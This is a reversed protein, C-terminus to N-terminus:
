PEIKGESKIRTKIVETKRAIWESLEEHTINNMQEIKELCLYVDAIEEILHDRNGEGRKQKSLEKTLESMEEIAVMREMDYGYFALVDTCVKKQEPTLITKGSPTAKYGILELAKDLDHEPSFDIDLCSVSVNELPKEWKPQARNLVCEECGGCHLCYDDLVIRKEEITM